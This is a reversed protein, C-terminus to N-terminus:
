GGLAQAPEVKLALRVGLASAVLCVVVVVVALTTADPLTLLVLRPFSDKVMVLTTAGFGFGILGMALSQQVILGVIVRDPAGILKLTAIERLKDLTLTYVILAIVVTSVIVLLVTFVGIQKRAKEIVNHILLGEQESQVMAGYHKWRRIEQVIEEASAGPAVVAVVANVIDTDPAPKGAAAQRRATAPMAEFQHEQADLLTIFVAPDGAFSVKGSTMGVVTFVTRGLRVVEGIELKASRDAVLEHRSQSIARGVVIPAPEGPRGLEFGVVFVRLTGGNRVVVGGRYTMSGARAVGGIRGVAERTSGPLRSPDAFPGESGEEVVWLDAKPATALSLAESVLGRYIGIMALAVGLLLGVGICTLVFRGLNHRIDRLALNM